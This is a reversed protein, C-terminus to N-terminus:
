QGLSSYIGRGVFQPFAAVNIHVICFLGTDKNNLCFITIHKYFYINTQLKELHLLDNIKRWQPEVGKTDLNTNTCCIIEGKIKLQM